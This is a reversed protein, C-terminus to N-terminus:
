PGTTGLRLRGVETATPLTFVVTSSVGNAYQHDIDGGFQQEYGEWGIEGLM